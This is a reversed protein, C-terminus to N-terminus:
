LLQLLSGHFQFHEPQLYLLIYRSRLRTTFPGISQLARIPMRIPQVRNPPLLVLAHGHLLFLLLQMGDKQLEAIFLSDHLDPERKLTTPFNSNALLQM